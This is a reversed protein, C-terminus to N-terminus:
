SLRPRFIQLSDFGRERRTKAESLEQNEQKCYTQEIVEDAKLRAYIQYM